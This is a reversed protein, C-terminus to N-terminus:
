EYLESQSYKLGDFKYIETKNTKKGDIKGTKTIKLDYFSTGTKDFSIKSDWSNLPKENWGSDDMKTEASFIEKLKDGLVSYIVTYNLFVGMQLYDDEIVVGFKDYGISMVKISKPIKGWSGIQIEAIFSKVLYWGKNEKNFEFVSIKPAAAHYDYKSPKTYALCYYSNKNVFTVSYFDIIKHVISDDDNLKDFDYEKFSGFDNLKKEVINRAIGVNWDKDVFDKEDETISYNNNPLFSNVAYFSILLALCVFISILIIKKNRNTYIINKKKKTVNLTESHKEEIIITNNKYGSLYHLAERLEGVDQFRDEPKMEMAMMVASSLQTSVAPNIKHPPILNELHRDTAAIPKEGTLLFYLTAGLAYIDTFPGRKARNSYQEIPAYGPTLMTTHAKTKGDEFDRASGFDILIIKDEPTILINEPKIDRHLMGHKHVEEIADLLQHMAAFISQFDELGGKQKRSQLTEGEIFEMVMYTTGNGKFFDKVKVINPHNFTALQQAEDLFRESFYEFSFEKSTESIVEQNQGRSSKNSIFLEKICVKQDLIIDKALYTYGFGGQSLFGTIKYRNNLQTNIQLKM